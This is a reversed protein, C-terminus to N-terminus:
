DVLPRTLTLFSIHHEPDHYQRLSAQASAPLSATLKRMQQDDRYVLWWDMLGEMYGLEPLGPMFNAILLTGGPALAEYLRQTLLTAAADGLYDYLGATYILDMPQAAVPSRGGLLDRVSRPDLHVGHGGWDRGVQALSETDQDLAILTKFGHERIGKSLAAERLHGCAVSLIRAQGWTRECVTDLVQALHRRRWRVARPAATATTARLLEEAVSDLSADHGMGYILDMMVADGAYGRPKDHCRRTFPCRLAFSRVPSARLQTQLYNLWDQPTLGARRHNMLSGIAHIADWYRDHAILDEVITMLAPDTAMM